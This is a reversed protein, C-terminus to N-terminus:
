AQRRAEAEAEKQAQTERDALKQDAPRQPTDSEIRAQLEELAEEGLLNAQVVRPKGAADIPDDLFRVSVFLLLAFLVHLGLSWYFARPNHRLIEWM